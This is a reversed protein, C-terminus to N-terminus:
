ERNTEAISYPLKKVSLFLSSVQLDYIKNKPKLIRNSKEPSIKDKIYLRMYVKYTYPKDINVWIYKSKVRYGHIM